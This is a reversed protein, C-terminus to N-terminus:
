GVGWFRRPAQVTVETGTTPQAVAAEHFGRAGALALRLKARLHAECCYEPLYLRNFCASATPLRGTAGGGICAVTFRQEAGRYGMLSAFGTAPPRTAGTAFFLLQAREAETLHDRVARWFWAVGRSHAYEPPDYRTHREWDDVDIAAEGCLLLQVEAVTCCTRLSAFGDLFVALGARFAAVQPEVAGLLKHQAYLRLYEEVNAATVPEDAGGPKLETARRRKSSEEYIVAEDGDVEFCLCMAGLDEAPMALLTRQSQHLAPDVSALDDFSLPYGFVAKLFAHSWAVGVTERHYLALGCIRGLLAFYSLHDEGASSASHPNPRLGDQSALFLGRRPDVMEATAQEFWERRLADGAAAEGQYRVDLATAATGSFPRGTAEDVSLAACAGVDGHRGWEGKRDGPRWESVDLPSSRRAVLQLTLADREMALAANCGVLADLRAHLWARKARLNLLSPDSLLWPFDTDIRGPSGALKEWFRVAGGIGALVRFAAKHGNTCAAEAPSGLCGPPCWSLSLKARLEESRVTQWASAQPRARATATASIRRLASLQPPIVATLAQHLARLCDSHGNQAAYHAPTFDSGDPAAFSTTHGGLEFLARICGAHGAEAALHVPTSGIADASTLSLSVYEHLVRLCDAHGEEAALHAPTRAYEDTASLSAAAGLEHLARLCSAHGEFAAIHAPTLGAPGAASLSHHDLCVARLSLM